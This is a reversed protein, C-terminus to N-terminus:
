KTKEGGFLLGTYYAAVSGNSTEPQTTAPIGEVPERVVAGTDRDLSLRSIGGQGDKLIELVEPRSGGCGASMGVDVRLVQGDCAANVGGPQQITHGVVVRRTGPLRRLTERLVECDCSDERPHSYDRAWVVSERARVHTPAAASPREWGGSTTTHGNLRTTTTAGRIWDSVEKNIHELGYDVHHPLLGGHAFITSGVAVVLPQHALFRTAMPGGPALAALRPMTSGQGEDTYMRGVAGGPPPPSKKGGVGAGGGGGIKASRREIFEATTAAGLLTM